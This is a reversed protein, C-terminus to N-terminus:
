PALVPLGFVRDCGPERGPNELAEVAAATEAAQVRTVVILDVAKDKAQLGIRSHASRGAAKSYSAVLEIGALGPLSRNAAPQANRRHIPEQEVDRAAGSEGFELIAVDGQGARKSRRVRRRCFGSPGKASPGFIRHGIMHRGPDFIAVGVKTVGAEIPHRHASGVRLMGAEM